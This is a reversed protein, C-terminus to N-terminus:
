GYHAGRKRHRSKQTSMLHAARCEDFGSGARAVARVTVADDDGGRRSVGADPLAMVVVVVRMM